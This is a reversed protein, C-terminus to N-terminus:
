SNYPLDIRGYIYGDLAIVVQAVESAFRVDGHKVADNWVKELLHKLHVAEDRRLVRKSLKELFDRLQEKDLDIPITNYSM